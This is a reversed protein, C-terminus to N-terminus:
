QPQGGTGTTGPGGPATSGAFLSTGDPLKVTTATGTSSGDKAQYGEVTVTSGVPVSNKTFGRRILTNPPALEVGWNVVKGDTGKVDFYLWSHPNVFDFKTITGKLTFPKNIDFEAAFSHHPLATTGNLLIALILAAAASRIKM